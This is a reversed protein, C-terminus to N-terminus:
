LVPKQLNFGSHDLFLTHVNGILLQPQSNSNNYSGSNSICVYALNRSAEQASNRVSTQERKVLVMHSRSFIDLKAAFLKTRNVMKGCPASQSSWPSVFTEWRLNRRTFNLDMKDIWKRSCAGCIFCNDEGNEMIRHLMVTEVSRWHRHPLFSPIRGGHIHREM